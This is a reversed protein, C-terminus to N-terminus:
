GIIMGFLRSSRDIGCYKEVAAELGNERAFSSVEKATDNPIPDSPDFSFGLKIAKAITEPYVGNELCFLAAGTLRDGPALKRKPDAGVRAVTDGLLKNGYREILDDGHEELEAIDTGFARSLALASEHLASKVTKRIEEDGIAEWIYKYGKEFGYYACVCHSMNHMFLKRKIYYDFPEYPILAAIAPLEGVAGSKDTYIKNYNEVVITLPNQATLEKSPAPVMCGISSQCLGIHSKAYKMEDESLLSSLLEWVYLHVDIKNECLIFNLPKENKEACRHKIVAAISRSIIPLVNVGCATAAIDCGDTESCILDMNRGDIARVNNVVRKDYVGNQAVYLPYCGDSNMRDSIEKNVEVFVVEYGAESFIRGALGRGINGAGFVVAKKMNVDNEKQIAAGGKKASPQREFYAKSAKEATGDRLSRFFDKLVAACADEMLGFVIEPRYNEGCANLDTMSGFAGNKRDRAGVFVRRVRANIIAGACMACPELTVYMDCDSLRWGSLKGNAKDIAEIEAHAVARKKSERRNSGSSIIEGNRVIVAGVPVEGRKAARKAIGLAKKMFYADRETFSANM